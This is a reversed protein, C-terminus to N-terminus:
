DNLDVNLDFTAHSFSEDMQQTPTAASQRSGSPIQSPAIELCYKRTHRYQKCRGCNKSNSGEGRSPIHAHDSRRGVGKKIVTSPHGYTIAM